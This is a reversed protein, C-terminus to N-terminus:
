FRGLQTDPAHASESNGQPLSTSFTRIGDTWTRLPIAEFLHKDTDTEAIVHSNNGSLHEDALRGM